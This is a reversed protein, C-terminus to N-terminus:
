EPPKPSHVALKHFAIMGHVIAATLSPHINQTRPSVRKIANTLAPFVFAWASIPYNVAVGADM